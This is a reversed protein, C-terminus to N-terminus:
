VRLNRLRYRYVEVPIDQDNTVENPRRVKSTPGQRTRSAVISKDGLERAACARAYWGKRESLDGILKEIAKQIVEPKDAV